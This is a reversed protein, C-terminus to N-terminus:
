DGVNKLERIHGFGARANGSVGLRRQGQRPHEGRRPMTVLGANGYPYEVQLALCRFEIAVQM